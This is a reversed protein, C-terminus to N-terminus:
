VCGSAANMYCICWSNLILYYMDEFAYPFVTTHHPLFLLGHPFLIPIFFLCYNLHLPHQHPFCCISVASFSSSHQVVLHLFQGLICHALSSCVGHLFFSPAWPFPFLNVVDLYFTSLFSLFVPSSFIHLSQWLLKEWFKFHFKLNWSKKLELCSLYPLNVNLFRPSTLFCHYNLFDLAIWLFTLYTFLFISSLYIFICVFSLHHVSPYICFAYTCALLGWSVFGCFSTQCWVERLGAPHLFVIFHYKFFFNCSSFFQFSKSYCHLCVNGIQWPRAREKVEVDLGKDFRIRGVPFWESM